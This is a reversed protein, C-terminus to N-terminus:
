RRVFFMDDIFMTVKVVATQLPVDQGWPRRWVWHKSRQATSGNWLTSGVPWKLHAEYWRHIWLSGYIWLTQLYLDWFFHNMHFSSYQWVKIYGKSCSCYQQDYRPWIQGVIPHQVARPDVTNQCRPSQIYIGGFTGRWREFCLILVKRFMMHADMICIWICVIDGDLHYM